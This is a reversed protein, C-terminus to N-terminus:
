IQLVSLEETSFSYIYLYRSFENLTITLGHIYCVPNIHQHLDLFTLFHAECVASHEIRHPATLM